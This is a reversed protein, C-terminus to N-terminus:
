PQMKVTIIRKPRLIQYFTNTCPLAGVVDFAYSLREGLERIGAAQGSGMGKQQCRWALGTLLEEAEEETLSLIVEFRQKPTGDDYNPDM